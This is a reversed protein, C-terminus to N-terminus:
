KSHEDSHCKSCLTIVDKITEKGLNTYTKHHCHSTYFTVPKKCSYCQCNDYKLRELKIAKWYTSKLHNLYRARHKTLYSPYYFNSFLYYIVSGFIFISWFLQNSIFSSFFLCLVLLSYACVKISVQSSM